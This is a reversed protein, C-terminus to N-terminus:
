PMCKVVHARVFNWDPISTNYAEAPPLLHPWRTHTSTTPPPRPRPHPTGSLLHRQMQAIPTGFNDPISITSNMYARTRAAKCYRATQCPLARQKFYISFSLTAYRTVCAWSTAVKASNIVDSGWM